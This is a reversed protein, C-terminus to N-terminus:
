RVSNSMAAALAFCALMLFWVVDLFHWYLACFRIPFYSEHDYADRSLGFLLFTLGAGGGVVHLAHVLVLFFTFGYLSLDQQSSTLLENIMHYMGWSQTGFFVVCLISAIIVCRWVEMRRERRMAGSAMHLCISIAILIISTLIFSKPIFFSPRTQGPPATRLAFYIAYLILSGFFFVSLSALFLWAGQEGRRDQPLKITM